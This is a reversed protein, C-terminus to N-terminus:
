HLLVSGNARGSTERTISTKPRAPPFLCSEWGQTVALGQDKWVIREWANNLKGVHVCQDSEQLDGLKEREAVRREPLSDQM